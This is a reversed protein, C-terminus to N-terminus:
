EFIPVSVKALIYTLDVYPRLKRDRPKKFRTTQMPQWILDYPKAAGILEGRFLRVQDELSADLTPAEDDCYMRFIQM